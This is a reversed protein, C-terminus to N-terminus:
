NSGGEGIFGRRGGRRGRRRREGERGGEGLGSSSSSLFARMTCDAALLFCSFSISSLIRSVREVESPFMRSSSVAMCIRSEELARDLSIELFCFTPVTSPTDM